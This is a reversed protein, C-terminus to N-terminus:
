KALRFECQGPELRVNRVVFGDGEPWAATVIVPYQKWPTEIRGDIRNAGVKWESIEVGGGSFHLDTGALVPDTGNWPTIRLLRGSHKQHGKVEVAEGPEFLGLCAGSFFESVLYRDSRPMSGLIYPTLVLRSTVTEDTWNILTVTVWPGLLGCRPKIRNLFQSPIKENFPDLAVGPSDISPTVHRYLDRTFRDLENFAVTLKVMGGPYYENLASVVTEDDTFPSEPDAQGRNLRNDRNNMERQLGQAPLRVMMADPNTHTLQGYWTRRACQEYRYLAEEWNNRMDSGTREADTLGLSGIMNGMCSSIYVEPGVANRIAELGRRYAQMRTVTPDHFRVGPDITLARIFDVLCVLWIFSMNYTKGRAVPRIEPLNATQSM